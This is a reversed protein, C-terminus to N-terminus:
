SKFLKYSQQLIYSTAKMNRGCLRHSEAHLIYSKYKTWVLRRFVNWHCIGWRGTQYEESMLTLDYLDYNENVTINLNHM